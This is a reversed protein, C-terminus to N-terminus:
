ILKLHDGMYQEMTCLTATYGTQGDKIKVCTNDEPDNEITLKSLDISAVVKTYDFTEFISFTSNNVVVRQPIRPKIKFKKLDDRM